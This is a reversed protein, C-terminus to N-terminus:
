LLSKGDFRLITISVFDYFPMSGTSNNKYLKIRKGNEEDIEIRNVDEEIESYGDRRVIQVTM